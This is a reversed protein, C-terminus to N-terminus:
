FDEKTPNDNKERKDEFMLANTTVRMQEFPIGNAPIAVLSVSLVRIKHIQEYAFSGDENFVYDSDNCDVYGEKSFGQIIGNQLAWVLRNYEPFTRPIYIVFYFGVTNTEIYLVRGCYAFWNRYGEHNIDVPMNLGKDVFYSQIFDAFATDDYRERNENTENWKM